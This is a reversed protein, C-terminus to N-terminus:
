RVLQGNQYYSTINSYEVEAGFTVRKDVDDVISAGLVVRQSNITALRKEKWQGDKKGNVYNGASWLLGNEECSKYEGHLTEDKFHAIRKLNGNEYYETYKGDPKGNKLGAVAKLKGNEYYIEAKRGNGIESLKGNEYYEKYEGLEKGNEYYKKVKLQGNEYYEEWKGHQKHTEKSYSRIEKLAGNPYYLAETRMNDAEESFSTFTDEPSLTVEGIEVKCVSGGVSNRYSSAINNGYVQGTQTDFYQAQQAQKEAYELFSACSSLQM